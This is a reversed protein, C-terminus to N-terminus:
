VAHSVGERSREDGGVLDAQLLKLARHVRSKVTGEAVGLVSSAEACTFGEVRVLLFAERVVLPLREVCQELVIGGTPEPEPASFVHILREIRRRRLLKYAKHRAIRYIWTAESSRHAFRSWAPIAAIFTEQVLDEADQDSGTLRLCYRYLGDGYRDFAQDFDFSERTPM